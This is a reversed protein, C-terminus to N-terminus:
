LLATAAFDEIFSELYSFTEQKPVRSNRALDLTFGPNQADASFTLYPSYKAVLGPFAAPDLMAKDYLSLTFRRDRQKVETIFAHHAKERLMAAWLLQQVPRPPEGFRDILEELMADRMDGNTIQSIRKYIDLRTLEDPIYEEPLYASLTIELSTEFAAYLQARAAEERAAEEGKGAAALAAITKENKVDRVAANLMKCYLDYGVEAIHGHQEEGLLNGAGRIELDRMAIKFGSGLDTFERIASLRKEAVERLVKDRKYMFFAYATRNSRGVRGRLQYLQSLGMNDADHIIITNVNSIDLGIEIITTSVLVDTENNIFDMMIDELRQEPMRGHAYAVNAEPVLSQIRAAMDAIQKARNYVYYVQGGRSLERLIAERVMEENYEFVYTQIPVRDMPAEELLSMDRIGVLSMHLTRPIPTASLSLVDVSRRMQKIKEKHTVGFRQEEDVILLGLDKFAVDKSLLRHTGIVIDITGRQLGEVTERIQAPTRFRSLLGIHVPYSGMRQLFTNYHQQALITTPVLVAVQKNEQVAKFAARIAIETKGYGVDGCILRDMIKKSEMDRKVAAIAETQGETEEYPFTEEFEKQWATDPGYAYGEGDQRAAYLEVLEKAVAGVAKQVKEKTRSWEQSNIDSLKPKKADANAYKQIVDLQTVPIYLHDGRAYELKLFERVVGDIEIHEMGRFIGLGRNEHVVYDGVSLESFSRIVEDGSYRARRKKKAKRAGFADTETILTWNADPYSFGNEAEGVSVMLEGPGVEHAADETYFSMLGEERLEESLRAARTRSPTLYLVAGKKKKIQKLETVLQAFAGNYTQVPSLHVHYQHASAITRDANDFPLLLVGCRKKIRGLTDRASWIMDAQGPLVEGRELRREMSQSFEAEMAEGRAKLRAPEDLFLLAEPELYDLLGATEECFYNLHTELYQNGFGARVDECLQRVSEALRGAEEMKMESRLRESTKKAEKEIRRVGRDIQAPTLVAESAPYIELPDPMEESDVSLQTEPDFFTLRDVEDGWLEIRVPMAQTLPFIDVIGGRVAFEGPQTVSSVAEYGLGAMATRWNDVGTEEGASLLVATRDYASLPPIRNMLADMTTVITFSDSPVTGKSEKRRLRVQRRQLAEVVQMRQRTLENGRVDSAYFLLDKAPYYYTEDGFAACEAALRKARQEDAAIVLRVAADAGIGCILHAKGAEMVGSLAYLHPTHMARDRSLADRLAALETLQAFPQWLAGKRTQTM